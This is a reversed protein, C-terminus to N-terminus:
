EVTELMKRFEFRDIRGDANKDFVSIMRECDELKEGEKFGLKCMIVQLKRADIYGERNKDFVRFAEELEEVTADEEELLSLTDELIRCRRCLKGDYEEKNNFYSNSSSSMELKTFVINVDDEFLAGENRICAKCYVDESCIKTDDNENYKEAKTHIFLFWRFKGYFQQFEVLIYDFFNCLLQFMFLKFMFGSLPSRM